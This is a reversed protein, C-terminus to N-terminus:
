KVKHEKVKKLKVDLALKTTNLSDIVYRSDKSFASPGSNALSTCYYSYYQEIAKLANCIKEEDDNWKDVFKTIRKEASTLSGVIDNFKDRYNDISLSHLEIITNKSFQILHSLIEYAEIYFEKDNLNVM